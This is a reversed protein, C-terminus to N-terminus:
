PMPYIDLVYKVTVPQDIFDSLVQTDLTTAVAVGGNDRNQVSMYIHGIDPHIQSQSVTPLQAAKALEDSDSGYLACTVAGINEILLQTTGDSAILARKATIDDSASNFGLSFNAEVLQARMDPATVIQAIDQVDSLPLDSAHTLFLGLMTFQALNGNALEPDDINLVRWGLAVLSQTATDIDTSDSKVACVDVADTLPSAIAGSAWLVLAISTLLKM